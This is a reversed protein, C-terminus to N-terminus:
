SYSPANTNSVKLIDSKGRIVRELFRKIKSM